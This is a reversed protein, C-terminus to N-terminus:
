YKSSDTEKGWWVTNHKAYKLFVRKKSGFHSANSFFFNKQQLECFYNWRSVRLWFFSKAQFFYKKNWAIKLVPFRFNKKFRGGGLSSFTLPSQEKTETRLTLYKKTKKKPFCNQASFRFNRESFVNQPLFPFLCNLFIPFFFVLVFFSDWRFFFYSRLYNLFFSLNQM